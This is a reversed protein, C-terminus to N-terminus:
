EWYYPRLEEAHSRIYAIIRHRKQPGRANGTVGAQNLLAPLYREVKEFISLWRKKTAEVNLGLAVSLEADTKGDLAAELLAQEVPRLRLVPAQFRYIAAAVSYPAALVSEPTAVVLASDSEAFEAIVRYTGTARALAIRPEGVAEKLIRNYRYGAFREAFSSGLLAQVEALQQAGLLDDCWSGYLNVFDVGCSANGVGIAERSLLVSEGAAVASIIRANLGPRPNAIEGAAFEPRVFVGMGCGVIRHGATNRRALPRESEIVTAQFAPHELLGKWVELAAKSGVLEDGLCAPQVDLCPLLDVPELPRCFM